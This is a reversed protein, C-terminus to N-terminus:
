HGARAKRKAGTVLTWGFTHCAHSCFTKAGDLLPKIGEQDVVNAVHVKARLVLGETDVLLHRKRGTVKKGGDYGRDGGAGTTKVSQSDIIGANPQPDRKLRVRLRSPAFCLTYGSGPVKELRWTRFYHHITKWPPFEHPLLRWACGSRVM